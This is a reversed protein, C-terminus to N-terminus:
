AGRNYGGRGGRGGQFGGRGGQFGGRGGQFGGRGGQFGGRGGQFGGRGGQFGGRGGGFGGRGRGAGGPSFKPKQPNTFIVLPLFFARDLYIKSGEKLSKAKVGENPLVNFMYGGVPGLIEDIRGISQGNSNSSYVEQNFMPVLDKQVGKYLLEKPTSHM